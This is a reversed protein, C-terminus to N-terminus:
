LACMRSGAHVVVPVIELSDCHESLPTALDIRHGIKKKQYKM